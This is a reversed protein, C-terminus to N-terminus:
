SETEPRSSHRADWEAMAESGSVPKGKRVPILRPARPNVRAAMLDEDPHPPLAEYGQPQRTIIRFGGGEVPELEQNGKLKLRSAQTANYIKPGFGPIRM